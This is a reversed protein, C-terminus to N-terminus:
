CRFLPGDAADTEFTSWESMEVLSPSPPKLTLYNTSPEGFVVKSSEVCRGANVHVLMQWDHINQAVTAWSHCSFFLTIAHMLKRAIDPLELWPDHRSCAPYRIVMISSHHLLMCRAGIIYKSLFCRARSKGHACEQRSSPLRRGKDM